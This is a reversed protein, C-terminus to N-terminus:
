VKLGERFWDRKSREEEEQQISWLVTDQGKKTLVWFAVCVSLLLKYPVVCRCKCGPHGIADKIRSRSRGNKAYESMKSDKNSAVAHM